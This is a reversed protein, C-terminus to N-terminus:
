RRTLAGVGILMDVVDQVSANRRRAKVDDDKRATDSEIEATYDAHGEERAAMLQWVAAPTAWVAQLGWPSAERDGSLDVAHLHVNAGLRAGLAETLAETLGPPLPSLQAQRVRIFSHETDLHLRLAQELPDMEGATDQKADGEAASTAADIRGLLGGTRLEAADPTADTDDATRHNVHEIM